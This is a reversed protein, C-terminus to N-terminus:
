GYLREIADAFHDQVVRRKLKLTPTVEGEDASFDRPLIAFRKIQEYRSRDANVDDVIGQVLALVRPDEALSAVDTTEIGQGSAWTRLEAEDLTLLASVYPRRDGVVLAQSIWRSTKLDNELNQPAVNKGGATILIDKKRDTITVFGDDDIQAIDGTRLWGDHDLVAATAEPDKFYGLFVMPSRVLLEGDEELRLETGPLAPGVTGFRYRAPSNATAGSTCETLGYAEVILVDLAHFFESIEPALPAGGSLAGRLRGGLRAKVKSFVLRDALRHKLALGTPLPRGAQRHRSVDRGVRLSWDILRRKPGTTEDFKALVATHIKEFVRPVSPFVTPRVQQLAAAAGLPDPLLALTVGRYPGTLSMLRGFNHALPLYLLMTDGPETFGELEDSVRVMEYENANTIMCGKPPGTTGSTYILTFLDDEDVAEIAAALADPHRSAYARGRTALGALDAFTLAHALRPLRDRHTTVKALQVDDECLVGVSESHELIYAADAASSSAYIPVGVAGITALALDFLTWELTTQALIAVADGKRIGLALLGNAYDDVREAAEATSVPRWGDGDQVLYAPWSRQAAVADRWLRAITRRGGPSEPRPTLPATETVRRM